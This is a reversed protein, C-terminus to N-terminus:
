VSIIDMEASDLDPGPGVATGWGDRGRLSGPHSDVGRDRERRRCPEAKLPGGCSM